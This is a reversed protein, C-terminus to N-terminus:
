RKLLWLILTLIASILMCTMVPFYFSFNGKTFHLDGPLSGLWGKGAGTWLLVGIVVVVSGILVLLKGLETM